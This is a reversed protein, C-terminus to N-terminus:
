NRVIEKISETTRTSSLAFLTGRSNAAIAPNIFEEIMDETWSIM